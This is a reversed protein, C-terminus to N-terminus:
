RTPRDSGTVTAATADEHGGARCRAVLSALGLSLVSEPGCHLSSLSAKTAADDLTM